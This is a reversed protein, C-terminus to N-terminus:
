FVANGVAGDIFFSKDLGTCPFIRCFDTCMGTATPTPRDPGDRGLGPKSFTGETAYGKLRLASPSGFPYPGEEQTRNELLASAVYVSLWRNPITTRFTRRPPGVFFFDPRVGGNVKDPTASPPLGLSVDPDDALDNRGREESSEDTTPRSRGPRTM